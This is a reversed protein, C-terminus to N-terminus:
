HGGNNMALGGLRPIEASLSKVGEECQKVEARVRDTLM